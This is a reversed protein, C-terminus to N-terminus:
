PVRCIRAEGGEVTTEGDCAFGAGFAACDADVSCAAVCVGSEEALCVSGAPCDSSRACPLTCMGRPFHRDNVLCRQACDGDAACAAGVQRSQPGVDIGGCAGLCALLVVPVLTRITM